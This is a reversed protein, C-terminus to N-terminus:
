RRAQLKKLILDPTLSVARKLPCPAEQMAPVGQHSRRAISPVERTGPARLPAAAAEECLPERYAAGVPRTVGRHLCSHAAGASPIAPPLRCM